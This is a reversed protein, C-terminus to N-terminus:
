KLYVRAHLLELGNSKMRWVVDVVRYESKAIKLAEGIRPIVGSDLEAVPTSNVYFKLKM